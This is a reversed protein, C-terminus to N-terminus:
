NDMSEQALFLMYKALEPPHLQSERILKVHARGLRVRTQKDLLHKRIADQVDLNAFPKSPVEPVIKNLQFLHVANQSELPPSMEGVESQTLFEVLGQGGFESQSIQAARGLTFVATSKERAREDTKAWYAILEEFSIVGRELDTRLTAARDLANERGGLAQFSLALELVEFEAERFGTMEVENLRPSKLFSKYAGWIEGPRVYRNLEKRGTTGIQKGTIAGQWAFRYLTRRFSEKYQEPSSNGATLQQHFAQYGGASEQARAFRRKVLNEVVEPDFGRDQGARVELFAEVLDATADNEIRNFAQLRQDQPLQSAEQYRERWQKNRLHAVLDTRTVVQDGAVVVVSDLFRENLARLDDPTVQQPLGQALLSGGMGLAALGALLLRKPANSFTM